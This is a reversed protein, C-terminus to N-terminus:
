RRVGPSVTWVLFDRGEIVGEGCSGEASGVPIPKKQGAVAISEVTAQSYAVTIAVVLLFVVFVFIGTIQGTVHTSLLLSSSHIKVHYVSKNRTFAIPMLEGFIQHNRRWVADYFFPEDFNAPDVLPNRYAALIALIRDQKKHM